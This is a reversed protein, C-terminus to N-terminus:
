AGVTVEVVATQVWFGVEEAMDEVVLEFTEEAEETDVGVDVDFTEVSPRQPAPTFPLVQWPLVKPDQQETLPFQPSVAAKQATELLHWGPYPVHVSVVVELVEVEVEM